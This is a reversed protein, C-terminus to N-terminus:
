ENSEAREAKETFRLFPQSPKETIYKAVVLPDIVGNGMADEMAARNLKKVTFKDFVKATLARRLGKEDITVSVPATYTVQRHIGDRVFSLSKQHKEQMSSLLVAQARKLRENAYDAAARADIYETFEPNTTPEVKRIPIVEM